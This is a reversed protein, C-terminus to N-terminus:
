FDAWLRFNVRTDHAQTTGISTLPLALEVIGHFHEFLEVESGIGYSALRFSSDQGPLTDHLTLTGADAFAYFRWENGTSEEVEEEVGQYNKKKVLRKTKLLSPTRLEFTGFIANDGLAEAEKYGRATGMGGGGFQESNVLPQDAAQGHLKLFLEWDRGLQQTHSIDGRFYIFNGDAGFRNRDLESAESGTGRIGLTVGASATTFGTDVRKWKGPNAADAVDRSHLWTGDWTASVPYYTIPTKDTTLGITVAQDFRKWDMGLSFSQYFGEQSPLTFMGRLGLIEGRGASAVSGLTSVNSDQKTGTLMLSFSDIDRFRWLYYASFVKVESTDQPSMQYSAGITHGLQWLNAYSFSGSLRLDTTNASARNNLEVNGHFPSKDKVLLEVDYLGPEDERAVLKPQVSRDPHKNLAAIDRQVDNFNIVKGEALSLAKAKIESPLFYRAGKVRLSAVKGDIVELLVVGGNGSQEAVMQVRTGSFGKGDYVKQLATAAKQIDVVTRGPGLFPYVAEEIEIRPIHKAGLVRFERIFMTREQEEASLQTTCLLASFASWLVVRMGRRNAPTSIQYRASLFM